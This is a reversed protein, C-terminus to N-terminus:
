GSQATPEEVRLGVDIVEEEGARVRELDKVVGTVDRAGEKM